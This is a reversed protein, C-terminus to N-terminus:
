EEEDEVRVTVNEVKVAKKARATQAKEKIAPIGWKYIAYGGVATVAIVGITVGVVKPDVAKVAKVTEDLALTTTELNNNLEM